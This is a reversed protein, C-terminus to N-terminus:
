VGAHRLRRELATEPPFVGSVTEPGPRGSEPHARAALGTAPEVGPDAAGIATTVRITM